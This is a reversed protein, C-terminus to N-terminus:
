RRTSMLARPSGVDDSPREDDELKQLEEEVARFHLRLGDDANVHGYEAIVTELSDNLLEAVLNYAGPYRKLYDTAVIHRFAHPGFAPRGDRLCRTLYRVRESLHKGEWGTITVGAKLDAHSQLSLFLFDCADHGPFALRGLRLYDDLAVCVYAPLSVDYPKANKMEMSPFRVKWVGGTGRYLNGKNDTRCNMTALNGVRLPVATLLGFMCVDRTWIALRKPQHRSPRGAKLQMFMAMLASMPRELELIDSIPDRPDRSMAKSKSKSIKKATARFKAYVDGCRAKWAACVEAWPAAEIDMPLVSDDPDLAQIVKPNRWLWGTEPRVLMCVTTYFRAIGQHAIDGARLRNFRLYKSVNQEDLLLALSRVREIPLGAGGERKALSLWAFYAAFMSWYLKATPVCFDGVQWPWDMAVSSLRVPKMRWVDDMSTHKDEDTKYELLDRWEARLTAPVAKRFDGNWGTRKTKSMREGFQSRSATGAKVAKAALYRLLPFGLRSTLTGSPLSLVREMESVRSSAGVTPLGDGSMWTRLANRSVGLSKAIASKSLGSKEVAASLAGAFDKPLPDVKAMQVVLDRWKLLWECRDQITRGAKGDSRMDDCWAALNHDFDEGFERGPHHDDTLRCWKMFASLMSIRNAIVQYSVGDDKFGRRAHSKIARFSMAKTNRGSGSGSKDPVEETTTISTSAM